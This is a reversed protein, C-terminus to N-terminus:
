IDGKKEITSEGFNYLPYVTTYECEFAAPTIVNAIVMRAKDCILNINEWGMAAPGERDIATVLENLIAIPSLGKLHNKLALKYGSNFGVGHVHQLNIVPYYTYSEHLIFIQPMTDMAKIMSDIVLRQIDDIENM